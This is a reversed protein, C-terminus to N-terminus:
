LSFNSSWDYAQKPKGDEMCAITDPAKMTKSTSWGIVKIDALDIIVTL